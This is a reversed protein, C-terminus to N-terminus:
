GQKSMGSRFRRRVPLHPKLLHLASRYRSCFLKLFPLPLHLSLSDRLYPPRQSALVGCVQGETDRGPPAVCRDGSSTPMPPIFSSNLLPSPFSTFFCVQGRVKSHINQLPAIFVLVSMIVDSQYFTVIILIEYLFTRFAESPYANLFTSWTGVLNDESTLLGGLKEDHFAKCLSINLWIPGNNHYCILVQLATYQVVALKWSM